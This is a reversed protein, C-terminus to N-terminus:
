RYRVNAAARASRKVLLWTFFASGAIGAVGFMLIRDLTTGRIRPVRGHVTAVLPRAVASTTAERAQALAAVAEDRLNWARRAVFLCAIVVGIMIVNAIVLGTAAPALSLRRGRM